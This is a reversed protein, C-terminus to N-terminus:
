KRGRGGGDRETPPQGLLVSPHVGLLDAYLELFDQNYPLEGREIRSITAKSTDLEEAVQEQTLKRAERHERLFHRRRQARQRGKWKPGRGMFSLNGVAYGATTLQM